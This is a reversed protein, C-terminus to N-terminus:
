KYGFNMDRIGMRRGFGWDGYNVEMELGWEFEEAWNWDKM